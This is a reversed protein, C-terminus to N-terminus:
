VCSSMGAPVSGRKKRSLFFFLDGALAFRPVGCTRPFFFINARSVSQAALMSLM